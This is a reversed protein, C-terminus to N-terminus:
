PQQQQGAQEVSAQQRARGAVPGLPELVPLVHRPVVWPEKRAAERYRPIVGPLHRHAQSPGLACVVGEARAEAAGEGGQGWVGETPPPTRQPIVIAGGEGAAPGHREHCGEVERLHFDAIEGAVM